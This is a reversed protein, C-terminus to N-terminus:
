RQESIIRAAIHEALAAITKSPNLGIAEPVISGDAVFLNRYGFAEGKHDVVGNAASVGMNCGGLPHPTILDGCTTWTLPTMPLGGTRLAMQQHLAVVADITKKSKTSNWKLFLKGKRLSLRGDAADRSQAFWPMVSKLAGSTFLLRVTAILAKDHDDAGEQESLRRLAGDAVNPLGGDEIFVPQGQFKGDLLDVAATITPGRTPIIDKGFHIAPTLFDGNSSWNHGLRDSLAPLAAADERCHLLLQTSGLSGAAVIVIRGTTTGPQLTGNAIEQYSLEYGGSIPRIRRVVHLPKVVAGHQEAIVIYNLDLTNRARVPCGIDCEGLHVCTGQQQGQANTVPKSKTPNFPDPQDYRWDDDFTVALDLPRFRDSYGLKDAAEKLLHTRPPWQNEPVPTVSMTKGVREYHPALTDLTIEPPWGQAFSDPQAAVSINAYVLSGGGVGAGQVVTMHPFVRFDFWGHKEAPREDDLTWPDGANRPFDEVRWRRGRELILVRYGAEALRAGCVAGGFGSGIIVVDFDVAM